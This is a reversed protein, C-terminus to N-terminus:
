KNLYKTKYEKPTCNCKNKFSANFRSISNFGSDLAIEIIKEDTTSLLRQAHMIRQEILYEKITTGFSKKFIINAYDPHLDVANAVSATDINKTYNGAIYIAMKEVLNTGAPNSRRKVSSNKNLLEYAIRILKAHIECIAVKEALNNESTLDTIWREFFSQEYEWNTKNDVIIIEGGLIRNVFTAPLDWKIFEKFPITLVYYPFDGEIQIIQHPTLAWFLALQNQNIKVKQGNIIYTLSGQPFYNIEIENHRDSKPMLNPKWKCCILGYPKLEPREKDYTQLIDLFSM